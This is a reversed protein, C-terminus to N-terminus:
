DYCRQTPEVNAPQSITPPHTNVASRKHRWDLLRGRGAGEISCSAAGRDRRRGHRNEIPFLNYDPLLAGGEEGSTEREMGGARIQGGPQM